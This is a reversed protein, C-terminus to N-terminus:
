KCNPIVNCDDVYVFGIKNYDLKTTCPNFNSYIWGQHVSWIEHATMVM